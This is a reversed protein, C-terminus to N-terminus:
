RLEIGKVSLGINTSRRVLPEKASRRSYSEKLYLPFYIRAEAASEEMESISLSIFYKGKDLVFREQPAISFTAEEPTTPLHQCIPIAIINELSDVSHLRYIRINVKCGELSNKKVTFSITKVLFSSKTEVISGLEANIDDPSFYMLGGPVKAGKKTLTRLKPADATVVASDLEDLMIAEDVLNGSIIQVDQAKVLFPVLWLIMLVFRKM